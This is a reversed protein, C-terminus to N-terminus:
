EADDDRIRKMVVILVGQQAADIAAYSGGAKVRDVIRLREDDCIKACREREAALAKQSLALDHDRVAEIMRSFSELEDQADSVVCYRGQEEGDVYLAITESDWEQSIKVEIM